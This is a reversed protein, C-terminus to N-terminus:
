AGRSFSLGYWDGCNASGLDRGPVIRLPSDRSASEPKGCLYNALAEITPYKWALTVPIERGLFEGLRSLLGVAKASDLGFHSFSENTAVAEQNIDVVQALERVLWEILASVPPQNPTTSEEIVNTCTRFNILQVTRNIDARWPIDKAILTEGTVTRVGRAQSLKM